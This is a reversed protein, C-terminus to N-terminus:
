DTKNQELLIGSDPYKIFYYPNNLEHNQLTFSGFPTVVTAKNLGGAQMVVHCLFPFLLLWM